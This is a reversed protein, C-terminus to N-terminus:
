TGSHKQQARVWPVSWVAGNQQTVMAKLHISIVLGPVSHRFSSLGFGGAFQSIYIQSIQCENERVGM